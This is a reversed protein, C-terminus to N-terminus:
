APGPPRFREAMFVEGTEANCGGAPVAEGCKIVPGAQVGFTKGNRLPNLTVNIITGEPFDKVTVGQRAIMASGGMEIGWAIAQGADDTITKGQEDVLEFIIQAHNAGPIFRTLKGTFNEEKDTNYMAFSHHAQALNAFALLGAALAFVGKGTKRIM